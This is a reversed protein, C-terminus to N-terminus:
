GAAECYGSIWVEPRGAGQRGLRLEVILHLILSGARTECEHAGRACVTKCRKWVRRHVNQSRGMTDSAETPGNDSSFPRLQRTQTGPAGIGGGDVSAVEPGCHRGAAACCCTEQPGRSDATIAPEVRTWCPGM